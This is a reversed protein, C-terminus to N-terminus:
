KFSKLMLKVNWDGRSGESIAGSNTEVAVEGSGGHGKKSRGRPESPSATLLQILRL